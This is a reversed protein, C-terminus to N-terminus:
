KIGVDKILTKNQFGVDKFADFIDAALM